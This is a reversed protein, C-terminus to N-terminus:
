KLIVKKGNIIFVGKTPAVVRRGQLDYIVDAQSGEFEVGEISTTGEEGRVQIRIAKMAEGSVKVPSGNRNTMKLTLRFPRLDTTSKVWEGETSVVLYDNLEDATRLSCTGTVAFETYMSSCVFESEEAAYLTADELTISFAKAEETKPRILYPHNAYLTASEDSIKIVEMTMNDIEGNDDNDYSRVDNIYAVDYNELLMSVPIEFPLYMANWVGHNAFTREYTVTGTAQKTFTYDVVDDLTYEALLVIEDDGEAAMAAELTAYYTDGIKAEVKVIPTTPKEVLIGGVVPAAEGNATVNEITTNAVTINGNQTMTGAVVAASNAWLEGSATLAVNKVTNDAASSGALMIGAIAGVSGTGTVSVNEVTNGNLAIKSSAYGVLGGVYSKAFISSNDNGKVSCNVVKLSPSYYDYGLIAGVGTAKAANININGTVHVNEISGKAQLAFGVVAAVNNGIFDGTNITVNEITFNKVVAKGGIAGFLGTCIYYDAKQATEVSTLNSITFNKGDFIGDFTASCDDGINVSWDIGALDIDAGLAVYVGEANYKTEGANVSNRFYVLHDITKILYPNAETGAGLIGQKTNDTNNSATVPTVGVNFAVANDGNFTCGTAEVSSNEDQVVYICAGYYEDHKPYLSTLTAGEVYVQQNTGRVNIVNAGEYTGGNVTVVHGSGGVVNVAYSWDIASADTFDVSCDTLTLKVGTVDDISIGRVDNPYNVATNSVMNVNNLTVETDKVTVRFVRTASSTVKHNNGNITVSKDLLIVESAELDALLTIAEGPQAAKYAAAFTSYYTDGIKAEVAAGGKYTPGVIATAGVVNDYTANIITSVDGWSGSVIGVRNDGSNLTVDKVSAGNLTQLCIIGSIGGVMQTGTISVGSVSFNSYEAKLGGNMQIDSIVGGVVQAGTITSGEEGAVTINSANVCRRTYALAGATYDGGKIAINGCVKVNDINTYYPYAFAAAVILGTTNITVNEITLNKIVNQNNQDTGETVGFFAAYAYGDSDLTPNDITLNKIKYGKGDFNGMFGHDATATGIGVWNEGALDIDAALVVNQGVYYDEGANVKDRLAKLSALTGIEYADGVKYFGYVNDYVQVHDVGDIIVNSGACNTLTYGRGVYGKYDLTEAVSGDTNTGSITGTYSCNTLTCVKTKGDAWGGAIGGVRYHDNARGDRGAVVAVNGTTHCNTFTSKGAAIGILGGAFFKNVTVDINSSCDEFNCEGQLQGALAGTNNNAKLYSGENAIVHVNKMTVNGSLNGGAVVAVRSAGNADQTAYVKIDGKVTVNEITSNGELSGALAGIHGQSHDIDMCAINIDVNEFTINKFTADKAYGFLGIYAKGEQAVTEIIKLNSITKNNGFFIGKFPNAENGIPSWQENALDIDAGLAVYVGAANYKMEGANVQERLFTLEQVNNILYPSAETGEGELTQAVVGLTMLLSVIFLTFKKM